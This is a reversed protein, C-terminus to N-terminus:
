QKRNKLKKLLAEARRTVDYDADSGAKYGTQSFVSIIKKGEETNGLEIFTEALAARFQDNRMLDSERSYAILDNVIGDTVGIVDTVNFMDGKGGYRSQWLPANRIRIHGYSVMVDAQEAALRAVASSHSEVQVARSLDSISKGYEKQLWLCPYIYGSSSSPSLVAWSAGNLDDWSPKEGRNM